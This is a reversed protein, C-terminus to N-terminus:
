SLGYMIAYELEGVFYDKPIMIYMLRKEMEHICINHYSSFTIYTNVEQIEVM